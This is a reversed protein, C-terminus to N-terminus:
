PYRLWFSFCSLKKQGLIRAAQKFKSSRALGLAGNFGLLCHIFDEGSLDALYRIAPNNEPYLAKSEEWVIKAKGFNGLRYYCLGLVNNAQWHDQLLATAKELAAVAPTVRNDKLCRLGEELYFRGWKDLM